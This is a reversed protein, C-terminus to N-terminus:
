FAVPDTGLTVEQNAWPAALIVRDGRLYNRTRRDDLTVERVGDLSRWGDSPLFRRTRITQKAYIAAPAQALAKVDARYLVQADRDYAYFYDVGLETLKEVLIEDVPCPCDTVSHEQGQGGSDAAAHLFVRGFTPHPILKGVMLDIHGSGDTKRYRVNFATPKGYDTTDDLTPLAMGDETRAQRRQAATRPEGDWRKARIAELEITTLKEYWPILNGTTLPPLGRAGRCPACYPEEAETLMFIHGCDGCSDWRPLKDRAYPPQRLAPDNTPLTAAISATAPPAPPAEEYEEGDPNDWSVRVPRTALKKRAM